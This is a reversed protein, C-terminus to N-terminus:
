DNFTAIVSLDTTLCYRGQQDRTGGTVDLTTAAQGEREVSLEICMGATGPQKQIHLEYRGTDRTALPVSWALSAERTAGAAVPLFTGFWRHDDAAGEDEIGTATGDISVAFSTADPPVFARLYGGYQGEYMLHAVLAPDRDEAWERVTNHYRLQLEHRATGLPTVEIHYVAEPAFVTNLKTSNVSAESFHLFDGTDTVLRGDWGFEAVIRQADPDFLLVQLHREDALQRMTEALTVLERAPLSMVEQLLAGQLTGVAAKTRRWTDSPARTVRELELAANESTLRVDGFGPAEITQAGVIDLLDQLVFLDVAIVGDIDQEGWALEYFQRAELAWTQFDPDWNSLGLNWSHGKLLYRELPGPGEIPTGGLEEWRAVWSASDHSAIQTIQGDDIALIGAVTVLGGGPMLESNNLSLLLYRQEGEFGLLQPLLVQAQAAQEIGALLRPLQQDLRARADDLPGLLPADGIEIRRAVAADALLRLREISPRSDQVLAVAASLMPSDIAGSPQRDRIEIGESALDTAILGMEALSAAIDLFDSAADVQDGIGPVWSAGQLIPDWRMHARASEIGTSAEELDLRTAVLDAPEVDLGIANVRQEMSLLTDRAGMAERYLTVYHWSAFTLVALVLGALLLTRPRRINLLAPM